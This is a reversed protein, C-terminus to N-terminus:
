QISQRKKKKGFFLCSALKQRLPFNKRDYILPAKQEHYHIILIKWEILYSQYFSHFPAVKIMNNIVSLYLMPRILHSRGEMSRTSLYFSTAYTPFPSDRNM